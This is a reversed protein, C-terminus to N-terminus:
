VVGQWTAATLIEDGRLPLSMLVGTKEFKRSDYFFCKKLFM